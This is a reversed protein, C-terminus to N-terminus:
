ESEFRHIIVSEILGLAAFGLLIAAWIIHGKSGDPLAANGLAGFFIEAILNVLTFAALILVVLSATKFKKRSQEM